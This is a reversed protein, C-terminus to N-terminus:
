RNTEGQGRVRKGTCHVYVSLPAGNWQGLIIFFSGFLIDCHFEHNVQHYESHKNGSECDGQAIKDELLCFLEM